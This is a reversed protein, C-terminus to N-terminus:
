RPKIFETVMNSLMLNESGISLSLVLGCIKDMLSQISKLKDLAAPVPEPLHLLALRHEILSEQSLAM